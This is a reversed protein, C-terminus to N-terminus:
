AEEGPYNVIEMGSGLEMTEKAFHVGGRLVMSCQAPAQERCAHLGAELTLLPAKLSGVASDSGSDADVFVLTGTEPLTFSPPPPPAAEPSPPTLILITPTDPLPGRSHPPRM